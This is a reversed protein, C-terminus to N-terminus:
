ESAKGPRWQNARRGERAESVTTAVRAARTETRKAQVIWELIGRRASRPFGDWAARARPEADLARALDDPELLDEVADLMSWSGDARAAAVVALGAPEMLGAAVLREVREKNPRSWGSRPRRPSFWLLGRDEDLSAPKSDVWGVCLAEEVADGYTVAPKGTAKKWSIVWVGDPELHHAALWARWQVRTTPHTM